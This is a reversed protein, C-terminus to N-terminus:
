KRSSRLPSSPWSGSRQASSVAMGKSPIYRRLPSRRGRLSFVLEALAQNGVKESALFSGRFFSGSPDWFLAHGDMTEGLFQHLKSADSTTFLFSPHHKAGPLRDELLHDVGDGARSPQNAGPLDEWNAPIEDLGDLQRATARFMEKTRAGLPHAPDYPSPKKPTPAGFRYEDTLSRHGRLAERRLFDQMFVAPQLIHEITRMLRHDAHGIALLNIGRLMRRGDSEILGADPGSVNNLVAAILLAMQQPAMGLRQAMTLITEGYTQSLTKPPNSPPPLTDMSRTSYSTIHSFIRTLSLQPEASRGPTQILM